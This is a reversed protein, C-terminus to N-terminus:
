LEEEAKKDECWYHLRVLIDLGKKALSDILDYLEWM